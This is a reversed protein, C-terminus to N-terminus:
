LLSTSVSTQDTTTPVLWLLDSMHARIVVLETCKVQVNNRSRLSMLATTIRARM